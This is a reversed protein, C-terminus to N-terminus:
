SEVCDSAWVGWEAGQLPQGCRPTSELAASLTFWIFPLDVAIVARSFYPEEMATASISPTTAPAHTFDFATARGSHMWRLATPDTMLIKFLDPNLSWIVCLKLHNPMAAASYRSAIQLKELCFKLKNKWPEWKWCAKASAEWQFSRFWHWSSDFSNRGYITSIYRM